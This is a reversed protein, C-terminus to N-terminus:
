DGSKEKRALCKKHIEIIDQIQEDTLQKSWEVREKLPRQRIEHLACDAPKAEYPCGVLLGVVLVRATFPDM